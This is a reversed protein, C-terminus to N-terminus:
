HMKWQKWKKRVGEKEDRRGDKKRLVSLKKM